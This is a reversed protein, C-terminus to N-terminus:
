PHCHCNARRCLRHNILHGSAIILAGITTLISEGSEGLLEHGMFPTAVLIMLGFVGLAVVSYTKHRKCGMTLAYLSTPVVASLMWWHVAEDQLNYATLVPLLVVLLPLALCHAICLFSLGIAAKDSIAQINNM